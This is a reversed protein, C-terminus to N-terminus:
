QDLSNAANPIQNQSALVKTAWDVTMKLSAEDMWSIGVADDSDSAILHLDSTNWIAFAGTEDAASPPGFRECLENYVSAWDDAVAIKFSSLRGDIFAVEGDLDRCLMDKGAIRDTSLCDFTSSGSPSDILPWVTSCPLFKTRKIKPGPRKEQTCKQVNAALLPATRLFESWTEGLQHHKLGSTPAIGTSPQRPVPITTLLDLNEYLPTFLGEARNIREAYARQLEPAEILFFNLANTTISAVTDGVAQAHGRNDFITSVSVDNQEQRIVTVCRTAKKPCQGFIGASCLLTFALAVFSTRTM